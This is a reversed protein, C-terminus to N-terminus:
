AYGCYGFDCQVGPSCQKDCKGCHNVNYVVDTCVGGCCREGFKCRHGCEGCNNWDRLVNRCHTKCCYLIGTGNNVSLGNCINHYPDPECHVGKRIKDKKPSTKLFRSRSRLNPIIVPEDPVYEEEDDFDEMEFSFTSHPYLSLLLSITLCLMAILKLTNSAM